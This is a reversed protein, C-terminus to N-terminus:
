IKQIKRIELDTVYGGSTDITHTSSVIYWKGSFQGIGTLDINVGAVLKVNGSVSITGTIKEKNKERLSGSAISEGQAKNEVGSNIVLTDKKGETDTAKINWKQVSNSRISRKVVVAEEYIQSTKDRFNGSSIDKRSLTLVSEKQELELENMFVLQEGRVSFIFGYEKSIGSLFSMDTQKEQTKRGIEIKKLENTNGVLKLKHKTAFYDAIKYLSQNEFAKNNRTRLSQTIAAAIAKISFIDPSLSLEIEDIEFEGCDLVAKGVGIKVALSDGQTPYWSSQWVGSIDSLELSLDDSESEVKDTYVIHSVFPTIDQTVNKGAISIDITIKEM